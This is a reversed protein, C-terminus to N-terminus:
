PLPTGLEGMVLHLIEVFTELTVQDPIIIWSGERWAPLREDLRTALDDDLIVIVPDSPVGVLPIVQGQAHTELYGRRIAEVAGNAATPASLLHGRLAIAKGITRLLESEAADVHRKGLVSITRTAPSSRIRDLFSTTPGTASTTTPDPPPPTTM